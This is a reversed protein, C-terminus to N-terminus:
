KIIKNKEENQEKDLREIEDINEYIFVKRLMSNFEDSKKYAMNLLTLKMFDSSNDWDMSEVISEAFLKRNAGIKNQLEYYLEPTLKINNGQYNISSSIPSPLVKTEGTSEYLEHIKVGFDGGYRKSNTIDFLIYGIGKGDPVRKVDEGWVTVKTPLGNETTLMSKFQNKIEKKNKEIGKLSRDKIERIYKDRYQNIAVYTNPIAMASFSRALNLLYRDQEYGGKMLATLGSNVGSLFSQDLSSRLIPFIGRLNQALYGNEEFEPDGVKYGRYAEAKAMAMSSLIGFRKYESILDNEQWTPDNGTIYRMYASLNIHYAPKDRYESAKIGAKGEEEEEMGAPALSMIGAKILTTFASSIIGGVIARSFYDLSRRRNGRVAYQVGQYISWIPIAYDFTEIAINIPTKVYPINAKLTLRMLGKIVKDLKTMNQQAEKKSYSGFGNVFKSIKTDQQYTAELGAQRAEDFSSEDPMIMFIERDKGKLGKLKAIESLRAKEAARRFPKDGLNLFRFMIEPPIGLTAELSNKVIDEINRKEKNSLLDITKVMAKLPHLAQSIERRYVDDPMHGTIMQQIAEIFGEKFGPYYGKNAAFYDYTRKEDPLKNSIKYLYPYKEPDINEQLIPRLKGLKSLVIDFFTAMMDKIGRVPAWTANAAINTLLSKPTLLNGQIFTSLLDGITKPDTFVESIKINAYKAKELSDKYTKIQEDIDKELGSVDQKNDIKIKYEEWLFKLNEGIVRSDNLAESSKRLETELEPTLTEMGIASAFLDKFSEKNIEGIEVVKDIYDRALKRLQQKTIPRTMKAYLSNVMKELEKDTLVIKKSPKRKLRENANTEKIIQESYKDIESPKIYERFYVKLKSILASTSGIGIDLVGDAADVLIKFFEIFNNDINNENIANKKIGKLSAMRSLADALKDKGQNIKDVANKRNQLYEKYKQKVKQEIIDNFQKSNLFDEIIQQSNKIDKTYVELKKDNSKKQWKNVFEILLDPNRGIIDSWRKKAELAQAQDTALMMDSKFVEVADNILKDRKEGKEKEAKNLNYQVYNYSLTTRVNGPIDNSTNLITEKLEGINGSESYAKIIENAEKNEIARGKVAYAIGKESLDKKFDEPLNVSELAKKGLKREKIEKEKTETEVRNKETDRVRLRQLEEEVVGKEQMTEETKKRIEEANEKFKFIENEKIALGDNVLSEWVKKADESMTESSILVGGKENAEKNLDIYSKKGFGKGKYKENEIRINNMRINGDDFIGAEIYGIKEGDVEINKTEITKGLSPTLLKSTKRTKDTKLFVQKEINKSELIKEKELKVENQKKNIQKETKIKSPKEQQLKEKENQKIKPEEINYKKLEKVNVIEQMLKNANEEGYKDILRQKQKIQNEKLEFLGEETQIVNIPLKEKEVLEKTETKVEEPKIEKEVLEKTRTKIEEPNVEVDKIEEPKVEVAKVEKPKVEVTKVEEPKIKEEVKNEQHVIEEAEIASELRIKQGAYDIINKIQEDSAGKSKEEKIFVDLNNSIDEVDKNELIKDVKVQTKIDLNQETKRYDKIASQKFNNIGNVALEMGNFAGGTASVTLFTALLQKKDWVDTMKQQEVPAQAYGTVIEEAFESFIDDFGALSRLEKVTSNTLEDIMKGTGLKSNIKNIVKPTYKGFGEVGVEIVTNLYSRTLAEGIGKQTEENVKGIYSNKETIEPTIQGIMREPIQRYMEPMMTARVAAGSLEGIAGIVYKNIQKKTSKKLIEKVATSASTATGSTLAFQVMYPVMSIIGNGVMSSLKQEVDKDSRLTQNLGYAFLAMQEDETLDRKKSANAIDLVNIGRTMDTLGMSFFDKALQSKFMSELVGSDLTNLYKDTKKLLDKAINLNNIKQSADNIETMYEPILKNTEEPTKGTKMYEQYSNVYLNDYKQQAKTLEDQYNELMSDIKLNSEKLYNSYAIKKEERKKQDKSQKEIIEKEDYKFIPVFIESDFNPELGEVKEGGKKFVTRFGSISPQDKESLQYEKLLDGFGEKKKLRTEYENYDGLDYGKSSVIDYFSKRQEETKMKSKFEDFTGIDFKNSVSNYLSQIDQEKPM